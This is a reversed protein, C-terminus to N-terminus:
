AAQAVQQQEDPQWNWPMLEDWRAAPWGSAIKEIVDAIYAQPEVGNLKATEIVSYIAAAREGGAKSGAFLWNKRGIAIARIAREAINNDIEAMGEGTYRTLADWRKRGYALAKVGGAKYGRSYFAYFLSQDTFGLDPQWDLGVRGTFEGWNLKEVHDVPYGTGTIGGGTLTPALLLQSPVIAFKKTDHTYRLGGTLKLEPNINYYFEGFAAYSELRYPNSSRFYNHGQGDISEVPNPDIYVCPSNKIPVDPVNPGTACQTPDGRYNFPPLMAIATLLNSMVYYDNQTRFKLYNGGVSFNFPGDFDSQLRAEYVSQKSSSSSIDYTAVRDTCGIQPDCLIGGPALAAWRSPDNRNWNDRWISTDNFMPESNFRNFDQFSYVSDWNFASQLSLTLNEMFDFDLGMEIVDSKARYIPDRVSAIERLNRSQMQGGYPDSLKLLRAPRRPFTEGPEPPFYSSNFAGQAVSLGLIYALGKGNPTGFAEDDYLSGAKCGTTFLGVRTDQQDQYIASNTSKRIPTSGIVERDDDRHCLQKGTRSRNDSERFREWTVHGRVWDNEFGLTSRLSWLDRGNIRNQTISNYDYGDRDTMAGAIRLGFHDPVIPINLMANMRRSDYNGFRSWGSRRPSSSKTAATAM